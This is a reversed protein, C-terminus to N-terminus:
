KRISKYDDPPPPTAVPATEPMDTAGAVPVGPKPALPAQTVKDYVKLIEDFFQVASQEWTLLEPHRGRLSIEGDLVKQVAVDLTRSDQLDVYLPYEGGIERFVPIDSAIVPLGKRIAEVIPLGFGEVISTFILAKSREYCYRLETDDANNYWYIPKGENQLRDVRAILEEVLWGVGGIFMLRVNVGRAWLREFSDVIYAHNKRAEVTSVVLFVPAGSMAAQIEGRVGTYEVAKKEEPDCGLYFYAIPRPPCGHDAMRGALTQRVYDSIAIYGDMHNFLTGMAGRFANVVAQHFLKPHTDPILDYMVAMAPTKKYAPTGCKVIAPVSWWWSDTYIFLDRETVQIPQSQPQYSDLKSVEPLILSDHKKKPIPHTIRYGWFLLFQKTRFACYGVGNILKSHKLSDRGTFWEICNVARRGLTKRKPVPNRNHRDNQRRVTRLLDLPEIPYFDGKAFIVPICEIKRGRQAMCEAARLIVNRVIRQVGTNLGFFFTCTCDLFIREPQKM